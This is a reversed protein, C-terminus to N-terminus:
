MLKGASKAYYRLLYMIKGKADTVYTDNASIRNHGLFTKLRVKIEFTFMKPVIYAYLIFM